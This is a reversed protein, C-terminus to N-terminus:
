LIESEKNRAKCNKKGLIELITGKYIAVASTLDQKKFKSVLMQIWTVQTQPNMGRSQFRSTGQELLASVTAQKGCDLRSQHSKYAMRCRDVIKSITHQVM